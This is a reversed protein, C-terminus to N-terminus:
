HVARFSVVGRMDAELALRLWPPACDVDSRQSSGQHGSGALMDVCANAERFIHTVSCTWEASSLLLIVEDLLPQLQCCHTRRAEVMSVVVKSDM